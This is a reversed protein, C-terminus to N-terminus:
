AEGSAISEPDDGATIAEIQGYFADATPPQMLYWGIAILAVLGLALGLTQPSFAAAFTEGLSEREDRASM